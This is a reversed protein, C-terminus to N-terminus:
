AVQNVLVAEQTCPGYDKKQDNAAKAIIAMSGHVYDMENAILTRNRDLKDKLNAGVSVVRNALHEIQSAEAAPLVGVISRVKPDVGLSEALSTTSASAMRDIEQMRQMMRDLEPQIREVRGVDRLVLAAGQETLSRQLREATALWEWWWRQLERSKM